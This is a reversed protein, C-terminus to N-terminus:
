SWLRVHLLKCLKQYWRPTKNSMRRTGKKESHLVITVDEDVHGKELVAM